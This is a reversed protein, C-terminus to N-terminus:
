VNLSNAHADGRGPSPRPAPSPSCPWGSVLQASQQQMKSSRTWVSPPGGSAKRLSAAGRSPPSPVSNIDRRQRARCLDAPRRARSWRNQASAAGLALNAASTGALIQRSLLSALNKTNTKSPRSRPHQRLKNLLLKGALFKVM